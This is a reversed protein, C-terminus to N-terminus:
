VFVHETLIIGTNLKEGGVKNTETECGLRVNLFHFLDIVAQTHTKPLSDTPQLLHFCFHACDDIKILDYTIM